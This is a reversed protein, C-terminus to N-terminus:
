WYWISFLSLKVLVDDVVIKKLIKERYVTGNVNGRFWVLPTLGRCSMGLCSMRSAPFKKKEKAPVNQVCKARVQDNQANDYGETDWKKEDTILFDEWFEPPKDKFKEACEYRM